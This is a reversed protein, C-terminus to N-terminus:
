VGHESKILNEVDCKLEVYLDKFWESKCSRNHLDDILMFLNQESDRNGRIWDRKLMMYVSCVDATKVVEEIYARIKEDYVSEEKSIDAIESFTTEIGKMVSKEAKKIERTLNENSYKFMRIVDGTIFETVDHFLAKKIILSEIQPKSEGHVKRHLMFAFVTVWYSHTSVKEETILPITQYRKIDDMRFITKRITEFMSVWNGNEM